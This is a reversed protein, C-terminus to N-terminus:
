IILRGKKAFLMWGMFLLTNITIVSAIAAKEQVFLLRSVAWGLGAGCGDRSEVDWAELLSETGGNGM